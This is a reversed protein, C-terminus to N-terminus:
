NLLLCLSTVAILQIFIAVSLKKFSVLSTLRSYALWSISYIIAAMVIVILLNPGEPDNVFAFMARSFILSTIALILLSSKKSTLSM